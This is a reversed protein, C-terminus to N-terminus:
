TDMRGTVGHARRKVPEHLEGTGRTTTQTQYHPLSNQNGPM